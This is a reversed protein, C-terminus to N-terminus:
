QEENVISLKVLQIMESSDQLSLQYFASTTMNYKTQPTIDECHYSLQQTVYLYGQGQMGIQFCLIPCEIAHHFYIMADMVPVQLKAQKVTYDTVM